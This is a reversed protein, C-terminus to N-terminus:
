VRNEMRDGLSSIQVFPDKFHWIQNIYLVCTGRWQVNRARKKVKRIHLLIWFGAECKGPKFHVNGWMPSFHSWSNLDLYKFLDFCINIM